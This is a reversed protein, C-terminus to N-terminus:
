FIKEKLAGVAWPRKALNVIKLCMRFHVCSLM